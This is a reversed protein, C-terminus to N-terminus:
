IKISWCIWPQTYILFLKKMHFMEERRKYWQLYHLMKRMLSTVSWGDAAWRSNMQINTKIILDVFNCDARDCVCICMLGGGGWKFMLVNKIHHWISNIIPHSLCCLCFAWWGSVVHGEVLPTSSNLYCSARLLCVQNKFPIGSSVCM